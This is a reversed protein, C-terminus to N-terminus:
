PYTRLLIKGKLNFFVFSWKVIPDWILTEYLKIHAKFKHIKTNRTSLDTSIMKIYSRVLSSSNHYKRGDCTVHSLIRNVANSCTTMENFAAPHCAVGLEHAEWDFLMNILLNNIHIVFSKLWPSMCLNKNSL